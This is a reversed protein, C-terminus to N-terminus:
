FRPWGSTSLTGSTFGAMGTGWPWCGGMAAGLCRRAGSWVGGRHKSAAKTSDADILGKWVKEPSAAIYLEYSYEINGNNM